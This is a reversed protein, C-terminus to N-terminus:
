SETASFKYKRSYVFTCCLCQWLRVAYHTVRDHGGKDIIQLLGIVEESARFYDINYMFWMDTFFYPRYGPQGLTHRFLAICYAPYWGRPALPIWQMDTNASCCSRMPVSTTQHPGSSSLGRIHRTIYLQSILESGVIASDLVLLYMFLRNLHIFSYIFLINKICMKCTLYYSHVLYIDLDLM